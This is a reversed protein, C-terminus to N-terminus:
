LVGFFSLLRRLQWIREALLPELIMLSEKLLESCEM